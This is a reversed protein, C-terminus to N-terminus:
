PEVGSRLPSLGGPFRPPFKHNNSPTMVADFLCLNTKSREAGRSAGGAERCTRCVDLLGARGPFALDTEQHCFNGTATCVPDDAFGSTQADGLLASAPISLYVDAGLDGFASSRGIGAEDAYTGLATEAAAALERTLPAASEVFHALRQPDGSTTIM